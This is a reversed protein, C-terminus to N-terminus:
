THIIVLRGGLPPAIIAFFTGIATAFGYTATYGKPDLNIIKVSLLVLAPTLLAVSMMTFGIMIAWVLRRYSTKGNNM